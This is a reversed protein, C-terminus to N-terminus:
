IDRYMRGPNFLGQPDFSQKLRLHLKHLTQDLPQFREIQGDSDAKPRFLTAHGGVAAVAARIEDAPMESLLWRQAGGWEACQTGPLDLWEALPPLSLRWLPLDSQFWPHQQERLERWFGTDDLLEGGIQRGSERVASETGALRIYLRKGDHLSASVPYNRAPMRNVELLAQGPPMELVRTQELVPRPLVKFSTELIVGLTGLAGTMLRSLDYGAVNKMVEGGFHVVEARGNIIRVGLVHDRVSGAYARAPGSLGCAVMGGVTASEGFHPPEFPLMQGQEALIAEAEALPTGARLTIVLERPQYNVIGRHGRLDLPSADCAHGYFAKSDGGQIRLATEQQLAAAVQQRLDESQDHDALTM